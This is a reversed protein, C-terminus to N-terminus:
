FLKVNIDSIFEIIFPDNVLPTDITVFPKSQEVRIISCNTNPYIYVKYISSQGYERFLSDVHRLYQQYKYQDFPKLSFSFVDTFLLIQSQQSLKLLFDLEPNQKPIKHTFTFNSFDAFICDVQIPISYLYELDYCNMNTIHNTSFTKLLDCTCNKDLDNLYMESPHFVEEILKGSFGVGACPEVYSKIQPFDQLLAWLGNLKNCVDSKGGEKLKRISPFVETNEVSISLRFNIKSNSIKYDPMKLPIFIM